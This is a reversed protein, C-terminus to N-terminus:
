FIKTEAGTYVVIALAWETNRMITGRLLLNKISCNIQETSNKKLLTLYGSWNELAENPEDCVL